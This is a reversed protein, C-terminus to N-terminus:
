CEPRRRRHERLRHTGLCQESAASPRGIAANRGAGSAAILAECCSDDVCAHGPHGSSLQDPKVDTGAQQM